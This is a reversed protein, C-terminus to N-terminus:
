IGRKFLIYKFWGLVEILNNRDKDSKIHDDHAIYIMQKNVIQGSTVISYGNTIFLSQLDDTHIVYEISGTGFRLTGRVYIVFQRLINGNSDLDNDYRYLGIVTKNNDDKIEFRDSSQLMSEIIDGDLFVVLINSDNTIINSLNKMMLDPNAIMYRLSFNIFINDYKDNNYNDNIWESGYVIPVMDYMRSRGLKRKKDNTMKMFTDTMPAKTPEMITVIQNSGKTPYYRPYEKADDLILLSSGAKDKDSKDDKDSKELYENVIDLIGDHLYSDLVITFPDIKIPKYFPQDNPYNKCRKIIEKLESISYNIGHWERFYKQTTYMKTDIVKKTYVTIPEEDFTIVPICPRINYGNIKNMMILDVFASPTARQYLRKIHNNINIIKMGLFYYHKDPDTILDSIYEINHDTDVYIFYEIDSSKDLENTVVKIDDNNLGRTDFMVDADSTYTTGLTHLVFGSFLMLREYLSLDKNEIKVFIDYVSRFMAVSKQVYKDKSKLYDAFRDVDQHKLFTLTYNNLFLNLSRKNKLPVYNINPDILKISNVLDISSAVFLINNISLLNHSIDHTFRNVDNNEIVDLQRLLNLRSKDSKLEPRHIIIHNIIPDLKSIDNIDIIYFYFTSFNRYFYLRFPEVIHKDQIMHTKHIESIVSPLDMHEICDVYFRSKFSSSINILNIHVNNLMNNLMNTINLEIM